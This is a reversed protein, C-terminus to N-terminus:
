KWKKKINVVFLAGKETEKITNIIGKIRNEKM